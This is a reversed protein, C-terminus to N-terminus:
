CRLNRILQSLTSPPYNTPLELELGGGCRLVIVGSNAAAPRLTIFGTEEGDRRRLKSRWYHFTGPNIQQEQCFATITQDGQEQAQVISAWEAATRRKSYGM